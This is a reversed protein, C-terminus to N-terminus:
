WLGGFVGCGPGAVFLPIGVLARPLPGYLPGCLGGRPRHCGYVGRGGFLVDFVGGFGRFVPGLVGARCRRGSCCGCGAAPVVAPCPGEVKCSWKQIVTESTPCPPCPVPVYLPLPMCDVRARFAFCTGALVVILSLVGLVVLTRKVM